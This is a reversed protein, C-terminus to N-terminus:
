PIRRLRTSALLIEVLLLGLAPWIAWTFLEEYRMYHRVKIDTKELGDIEKFIERLSDSDTARFYRGGTTDAISKLSDEDIDARLYVYRKGLVPDQVPYPAEGRAGVGITYVKIGLTKALSAATSPDIAGRNNRGDTLLVIVKSKADSDRLRNLAMSLGMGIATGEDREALRTGSLIELLVGYDLTLPCATYGSGAFVVLGLRDSRRGKVFTAVAEKAVALRNKPRFDEAAMSTSNDLVLVIDIGRTLMEEEDHGAQPRAFGAAVLVIVACRLAMPLWATRAALTRGAGSLLSVSPYRYS